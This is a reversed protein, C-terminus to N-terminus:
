ATMNHWHCHIEKLENQDSYISSIALVLKTEICKSMLIVMDQMCPLDTSMMVTFANVTTCGISV